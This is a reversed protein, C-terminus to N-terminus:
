SRRRRLLLAGVGIAAVGGTAWAWLPLPGYKKLYFPTAAEAQARAQEAAEQEAAQRLAADITAGAENFRSQLQAQEEASRESPGTEYAPATAVRLLPAIASSSKTLAASVSPKFAIQGLVRPYSM